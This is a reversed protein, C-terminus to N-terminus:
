NGSRQNSDRDYNIFRGSTNFILLQMTTNNVSSRDLIINLLHTQLSKEIIHIVDGIVEEFNVLAYYVVTPGLKTEEKVDTISAM